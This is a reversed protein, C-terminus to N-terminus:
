KKWEFMASPDFFATTIETCYVPLALRQELHVLIPNLVKEVARGKGKGAGEGKGTGKGKGRNGKGMTSTYLHSILSAPQAPQPVKKLYEFLCYM